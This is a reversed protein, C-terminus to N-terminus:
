ALSGSIFRDKLSKLTDRCEAAKEFELNKAAEKMRKEVRKMEVLLDSESKIEAPRETKSKSNGSSSPESYV